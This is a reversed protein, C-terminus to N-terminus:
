AYQPHRRRFPRRSRPAFVTFHSGSNGQQRARAFVVSKKGSAEAREPLPKKETRSYGRPTAPCRKAGPTVVVCFCRPKGYPQWRFGCSLERSRNPTALHGPFVAAIGIKFSIGEWFGTAKANPFHRGQRGGPSEKRFLTPDGKSGPLPTFWIGNNKRLPIERGSMAVAKVAAVPTHYASHM